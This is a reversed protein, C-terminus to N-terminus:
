VVYFTTDIYFPRKVTTDLLVKVNLDWSGNSKRVTSASIDRIFATQFYELFVPKWIGISPAALGWDWGFSAQMKRLLNMHCEGHYVHPTCAPPPPDKLEEALKLAEKIPSKIMVEIENDGNRLKNKIDFSYRVFMNDTSGVLIGNVYIDSITDVGLFTLYIHSARNLDIIDVKNSSIILRSICIHKYQDFSWKGNITTKYNWNDNGLWRLKIDNYSYFLDSEQNTEYASYVGSPITM